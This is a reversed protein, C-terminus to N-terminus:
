RPVFRVEFLTPWLKGTVLFTGTDPKHAIGNLVDAGPRQDAPLLGTCDIEAIVAGSRPDIQVIVDTQWVNAYVTGDVCELENLKPLPRGARTVQVTGTRALTDPDRFSLTATGDSAVLRTGDYCLGWGEVDYPLSARLAFDDRGWVLATHEQWTLQVLRDGVLALGEGFYRDDTAQRRRVEGTALDVERVDSKGKLGVSEFLRSGDLVLGETFAARDHPHTAVVEPRLRAITPGPGNGVLPPLTAAPREAATPTGSRGCAASALLTAGVLATVARAPRTWLPM